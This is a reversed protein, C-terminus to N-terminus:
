FQQLADTESTYIPLVKDFGVLQIVRKVMGQPSCVCLKGGEAEVRRAANLLARLGSSSLYLVKALNIILRPEGSEIIRTLAEALDQAGPQDLREVVELILVAGERRTEVDV